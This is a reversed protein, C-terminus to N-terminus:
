HSMQGEVERLDLVCRPFLQQTAFRGSILLRSPDADANVLATNARHKFRRGLVRHVLVM